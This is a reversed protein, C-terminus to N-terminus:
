SKIQAGKEQAMKILEGAAHLAIEKTGYPGISNGGLDRMFWGHYGESYYPQFAPEIIQGKAPRNETQNM